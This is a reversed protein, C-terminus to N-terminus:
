DGESDHGHSNISQDLNFRNHPSQSNQEDGETDEHMKSSLPSM